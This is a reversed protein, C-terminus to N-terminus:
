DVMGANEEIFAKHISQNIEKRGRASGVISEFIKQDISPPALCDRKWKMEKKTKSPATRALLVFILHIPKGRATPRGQPGAQNIGNGKM